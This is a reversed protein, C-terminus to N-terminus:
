LRAENQMIQSSEMVRPKCSVSDSNIEGGHLGMAAIFAIVIVMAKIGSNYWCLLM